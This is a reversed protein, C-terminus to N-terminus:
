RREKALIDHMLKYPGLTKDGIALLDGTAEPSTMVKHIAVELPKNTKDLYRRRLPGNNIPSDTDTMSRRLSEQLDFPRIPLVKM